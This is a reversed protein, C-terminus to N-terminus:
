RAGAPRGGAHVAGTRSDGARDDATRRPGRAGVVGAGRPEVARARRARDAGGRLPATLRRSAHRPHERCAREHRRRRHDASRRRARDPLPQDRHFFGLSKLLPRDYRALTESRARALRRRHALDDRELAAHKLSPPHLEAWTRALPLSPVPRPITANLRYWADILVRPIPRRERALAHRMGAAGDGRAGRVRRTAGRTPTARGRGRALPPRARPGIRRPGARPAPGGRWRMGTPTAACCRCSGSASAVPATFPRPDRRGTRM